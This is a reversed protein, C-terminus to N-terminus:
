QRGRLQPGRRSAILENVLMAGFLVPAVFFFANIVDGVFLIMDYTMSMIVMNGFSFIIARTYSPLRRFNLPYYRFVSFIIGLVGCYLVGGVWGFYIQGEVYMSPNPGFTDDGTMSVALISGVTPEYSLLRFPAFLPLLVYQYCYDLIDLGHLDAIPNSFYYSAGIGSFIIRSLLQLGAFELPDVAASVAEARAYLLVISVCLIALVAIFVYTASMRFPRAMESSVYYNVYFFSIYVLLLSAKAGVFLLLFLPLVIGLLSVLRNVGIGKARCYFWLTLSLYSFVYFLRTIAGGGERRSMVRALEPDNSLSPLGTFVYYIAILVLFFTSVKLIRVAARSNTLRAHGNLISFPRICRTLAWKTLQAGGIFLLQCLIVYLVTRSWLDKEIFRDYIVLTLTITTNIIVLFWIPDVFSFLLRRFLLYNTFLTLGLITLYAALDLEQVVPM